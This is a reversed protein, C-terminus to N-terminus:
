QYCGPFQLNKLFVRLTQTVTQGLNEKPEGTMGQTKMKPIDTQDQPAKQVVIELIM